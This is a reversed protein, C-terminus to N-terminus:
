QKLKVSLCPLDAHDCVQNGRQHQSRDNNTKNTEPFVHEPRICYNPYKTCCRHSADFMRTKPSTKDLYVFAMWLNEPPENLMAVVRHRVMAFEPRKNNCTPCVPSVKCTRKRVEVDLCRDPGSVVADRQGRTLSARLEDLIGDRLLGSMTHGETSCEGYHRIVYENSIKDFEPFGQDVLTQNVRELTDSGANSSAHPNGLGSLGAQGFLRPIGM